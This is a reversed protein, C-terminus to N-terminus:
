GTYSPFDLPIERGLHVSYLVTEKIRRGLGKELATHYLGLQKAYRSVLEEPSARDTKYDVLVAEEGELFVCDAIGQLIIPDGGKAGEGLYDQAPLEYFFKVERLIQTSSLIRAMLGGCFLRKLRPLDLSRAEEEAM